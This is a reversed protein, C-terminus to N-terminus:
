LRDAQTELYLDPYLFQNQDFFSSQKGNNQM